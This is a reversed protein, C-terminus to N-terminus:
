PPDNPYRPPAQRLSSRSGSFHAFQHGFLPCFMRLLFRIFGSANHPTRPIGRPPKDSAPNLALFIPLRTGSFNLFCKYFSGVRKKNRKVAESTQLGSRKLVPHRPPPSDSALHPFLFFDAFRHGFLNWFNRLLFKIFGSRRPWGLNILTGAPLCTLAYM